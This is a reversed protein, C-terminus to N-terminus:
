RVCLFHYVTDQSALGPPRGDRRFRVQSLDTAVAAAANLALQHGGGRPELGPAPSLVACRAPTSSIRMLIVVCMRLFLRLGVLSLGLAVAIPGTVAIFAVCICM